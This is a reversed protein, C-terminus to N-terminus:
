QDVTCWRNESPSQPKTTTPRLTSSATSSSGTQEGELLGQNSKSYSVTDTQDDGLTALQGQAHYLNSSLGTYWQLLAGDKLVVKDSQLFLKLHLM